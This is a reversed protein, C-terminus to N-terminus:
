AAHNVEHFFIRIVEREFSHIQLHSGDHPFANAGEDWHYTGRKSGFFDKSEKPSWGTTNRYGEAQYKGLFLEEAEARSAVSVETAGM